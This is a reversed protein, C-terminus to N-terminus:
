PKRLVAQITLIRGEDRNKAGAELIAGLSSGMILEQIPTAQSSANAAGSFEFTVDDWELIQYGFHALIAKMEDPTKLFSGSADKAWMLPFHPPSLPGAMPEQIVLNGGSKLM